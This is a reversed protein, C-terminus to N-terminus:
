REPDEEDVKRYKGHGRGGLVGRVWKLGGVAFFLAGLLGVVLIGTIYLRGSSVPFAALEDAIAKNAGLSSEASPATASASPTSSTM